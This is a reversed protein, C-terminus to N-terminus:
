SCLEFASKFIRTFKNTFMRADADTMTYLATSYASKFNRRVRISERAADDTGGDELGGGFV